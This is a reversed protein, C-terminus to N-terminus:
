MLNERNFYSTHIRDGLQVRVSVNILTQFTSKRPPSPLSNKAQPFVTMCVDGFIVAMNSSYEYQTGTWNGKIEAVKYDIDWLACHLAHDSLLSTGWWVWSAAARGALQEWLWGALSRVRLFLSVGPWPKEPSERCLPAWPKIAVSNCGSLECKGNGFPPGEHKQFECLANPNQFGLWHPAPLPPRPDAILSFVEQTHGAQRQDVLLLCHHGECLRLCLSPARPHRYLFLQGWGLCGTLKSQGTVM